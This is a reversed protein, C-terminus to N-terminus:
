KIEKRGDQVWVDEGNMDNLILGGDGRFYDGNDFTTLEAVNIGNRNYIM